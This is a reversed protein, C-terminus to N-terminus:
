QNLSGKPNISNVLGRILEIALAHDQSRYFRFVSRTTRGKISVTIQRDSGIELDVVKSLPLEVRKGESVWVLADSLCQLKGYDDNERGKPMAVMEFDWLVDRGDFTQRIASFPPGSKTRRLAQIAAKVSTILEAAHERDTEDLGPSMLFTKLAEDADEISRAKERADSFVSRAAAITRELTKRSEAAKREKHQRRNNWILWAPWVAALFWLTENKPAILVLLVTGWFLRKSTLKRNM